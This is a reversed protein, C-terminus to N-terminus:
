KLSTRLVTHACQHVNIGQDEVHTKFAPTHAQTEALFYFSHLKSVM